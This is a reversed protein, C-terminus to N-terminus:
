AVVNDDHTSNTVNGLAQLRLTLLELELCAHLLGLFELTKPYKRSSYGVIEVIQQRSNKATEVQRCGFQQWIGRDM